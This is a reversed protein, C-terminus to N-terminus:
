TSKCITNQITLALSMRQQLSDNFSKTDPIDELHQHEKEM